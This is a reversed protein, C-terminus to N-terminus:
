VHVCGDSGVVWAPLGLRVLWPPLSCVMAMGIKDSEGRRLVAPPVWAGTWMGTPDWCEYDPRFMNALVLVPFVSSGRSFIRSM